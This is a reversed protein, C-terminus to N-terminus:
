RNLSFSQGEYSLIVGDPTIEDITPGEKLTDGQRYKSMNIFVFRESTQSAYVHMDLRLPTMELRGDLVMQTMSPPGGDASSSTTAAPASVPAPTAAPSTPTPRITTAAASEAPPVEEALPRVDDRAVPVQAPRRPPAAPATPVPREEIVRTATPAPEEDRLLLAGVLVANLVLIIAIVALWRGRTARPKQYPVDAIGPTAQQQRENESKRLADLIFSM